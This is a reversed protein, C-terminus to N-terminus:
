TNETDYEFVCPSVFLLSRTRVQFKVYFMMVNLDNLQLLTFLMM